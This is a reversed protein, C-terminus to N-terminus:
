FIRLTHAAPSPLTATSRRLVVEVYYLDETFDISGAHFQCRLCIGPPTPPAPLPQNQNIVSCIENREGTCRKVRFLTAAVLSGQPATSGLELFQWAPRNPGFPGTEFTNTVNYRLIIPALSASAPNYGVGTVNAPYLAAPFLPPGFAFIPALGAPFASEDVTGTSAVATWPVVVGTAQSAASTASSVNGKSSATRGYIHLGGILTASLMSVCILGWLAKRRQKMM